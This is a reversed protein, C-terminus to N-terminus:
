TIMRGVFKEFCVSTQLGGFVALHSETDKRVTVGM